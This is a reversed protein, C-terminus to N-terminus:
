PPCLFTSLSRVLAPRVEVFFLTALPPRLSLTSILRLVVAFALSCFADQMKGTQQALTSSQSVGLSGDFTQREDLLM